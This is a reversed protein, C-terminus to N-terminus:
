ARDPPGHEVPKELHLVYATSSLSMAYAAAERFTTYPGYARRGTAGLEDIVVFRAIPKSV